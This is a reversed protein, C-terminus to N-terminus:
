EDDHQKMQYDTDEDIMDLMIEAIEPDFQTGKGREIQDRVVEQPLVDRYPRKSTMADYADAVSIIKALYPIEDSSLHNPYGNGDIREHHCKAGEAFKGKISIDKLIEYGVSPHRKIEAYEEDTLKGKKNIINNDIGLKGVDHILGAYYVEDAEQESFGLRFAIEQAYRAVRKSHGATYPDNADVAKAISEFTEQSLQELERNKMNLEDVYKAKEAQILADNLENRRTYLIDIVFTSFFAQIILIAATIITEPVINVNYESDMGRAIVAIMLMAINVGTINWCMRKDEYMITFILPLSYTLFTPAFQYHSFSINLCILSMSITLIYKKKEDSKVKNCLLFCIGTVVLNYLTTLLQYRILKEAITNENYGQQGTAFLITNVVVEVCFQCVSMGIIAKKIIRQWYEYNIIETGM